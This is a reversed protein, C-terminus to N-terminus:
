DEIVPRCPSLYPDAQVEVRGRRLVRVRFANDVGPIEGEDSRDHVLGWSGPFRRAIYAMLADVQAAEEGRRNTQGHVSVVDLGNLAECRVRFSSSWGAAGIWNRLEEVGARLERLDDEYPDGSIGFWGHVEYM